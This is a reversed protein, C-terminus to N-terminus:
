GRRSCDDFIKFYLSFSMFPDLLVGDCTVWTKCINVNLVNAESKKKFFYFQLFFFYLGM